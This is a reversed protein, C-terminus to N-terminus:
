VKLGLELRRPGNAVGDTGMEFDVIGMRDRRKKRVEVSAIKALPEAEILANTSGEGLRAVADKIQPHIGGIAPSKIAHARAVRRSHGVCAVVNGARGSRQLRGRDVVFLGVTLIQRAPEIAIIGLFPICALKEPIGKRTRLRNFRDLFDLAEPHCLVHRPVFKPFGM